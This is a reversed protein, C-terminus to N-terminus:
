GTTFFYLTTMQLPRLVYVLFLSLSPSIFLYLSSSYLLLLGTGHVYRSVYDDKLSSVNNALINKTKKNTLNSPQGNGTPLSNIHTCNPTIHNLSHNWKSSPSSILISAQPSISKNNSSITSNRCLDKLHIDNNAVDESDCLNSSNRKTIQHEMYHIEQKDLGEQTCKKADYKSNLKNQSNNAHNVPVVTKDRNSSIKKSNSSTSHSHTLAAHSIGNSVINSSNTINSSVITEASTISNTNNSSCYEQPLAQNLLKFYFENEKTIEKQKRLRMKYSVHSKFGFGLTVVPYGISNSFFYFM